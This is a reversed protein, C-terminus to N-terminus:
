KPTICRPRIDSDPSVSILVLVFDPCVSIHVLVFDPSVSIHVDLVFSNVERVLSSEAPDESPKIIHTYKALKVFICTSNKSNYMSYNQLKKTSIYEPAAFWDLLTRLDKLGVSAQKATFICSLM